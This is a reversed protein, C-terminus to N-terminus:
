SIGISSLDCLGLTGSEIWNLYNNKSFKTQEEM